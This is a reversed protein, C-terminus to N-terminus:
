DDEDGEEIGVLEGELEAEREERAIEERAQQLLSVMQVNVTQSGAVALRDGWREPRWAQLVRVLIAPSPARRTRRRVNGDGDYEIDEGGQAALKYAVDELYDAGTERAKEWATAFAEDAKAVAYPTDRSFGLERTAAACSMGQATLECFRVQVAEDFRRKARACASITQPGRTTEYPSSAPQMDASKEASTRVSTRVSENM